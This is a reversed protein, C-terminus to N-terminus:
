VQRQDTIARFVRESLDKPLESQCRSGILKRLGTHFHYFDDCGPCSGLHHQVMSQREVEMMGDMYRYLDELSPRCGWSYQPQGTPPDGAPPENSKQPGENM